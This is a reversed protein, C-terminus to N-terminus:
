SWRDPAQLHDKLYDTDEVDLGFGEGPTITYPM